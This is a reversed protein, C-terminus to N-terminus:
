DEQDSSVASAVPETTLVVNWDRGLREIFQGFNAQQEPRLIQRIRPGHTQVVDALESRTRDRIPVIEDLMDKLIESVAERQDDDLDLKRNLHDVIMTHSVDPDEMKQKVNQAVVITGVVGFVTGSGFVLLIGLALKWWAKKM